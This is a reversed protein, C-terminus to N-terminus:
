QCKDHVIALWIRQQTLKARINSINKGAAQPMTLRHSMDMMMMMKGQFWNSRVVVVVVFVVVVVVGGCGGCGAWDVEVVRVM